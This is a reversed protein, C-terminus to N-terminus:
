YRVWSLGTTGEGAHVGVCASLPLVVVKLKPFEQLLEEKWTRADIANNCNIVAVEPVKSIKMDNRLLNMVYNKARKDARVKEKMVVKGNDFSIVVKINLLNSLFAKTGSVRGSKHLQTLSSPIFSLESNNTMNEIHAVVEEIDYNEEMLRKGVELMKVMPYSGIKSDISYVQFNAMKSATQSSNYTGSLESSTHVAVACDYGKAKLDEYLQVMEGIPPQSTKPHVKAKRLKDYFEDHTMEITEKFAGDEFVINLPLVYINHKEIFTPDLLAATDTIWAVKKQM